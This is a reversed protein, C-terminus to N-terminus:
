PGLEGYRDMMAVKAAVDTHGPMAKCRWRGTEIFLDGNRRIALPEIKRATLYDLCPLPWVHSQADIRM